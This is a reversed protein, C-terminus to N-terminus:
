GDNNSLLKAAIHPKIKKLDIGACGSNKLLM